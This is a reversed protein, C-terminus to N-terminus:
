WDAVLERFEAAEDDLASWLLRDIKAPDLGGSNAAENSDGIPFATGLGGAWGGDM